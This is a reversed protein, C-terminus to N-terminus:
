TIIHSSVQFLHFQMESENTIVCVFPTHVLNGSQDKAKTRTASTPEWETLSSSRFRLPAVNPLSM